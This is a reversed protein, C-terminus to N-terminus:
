ARAVDCPVGRHTVSGSIPDVDHPDVLANANHDAWGYHACVVGQAQRAVIRARFRVMGRASRVTVWDGDAIGRASATDSGIEVIPDPLRRRLGPIERHQAHCYHPVKATTLLLPFRPDGERDSPADPLPDYGAAAFAESWIEVLRSPTDFGRRGEDAAHEHRKRAQVVKTRIGSPRARLMAVTLGSPALHADLAADIDGHWFDSDFGLRSALAFAIEIDSRSEGAASVAAPRLQVLSAADENVEFGVRLGEREWPMSVPLVIDALAASRHLFPGIHVYLDLAALAARGEADGARTVLPNIGFGIMARIPYPTGHLIARYFDATAIGAQWRGPGLPRAEIGIAPKRGAAVFERGDLPVTPPGGFDVNGGPTDISGALSMVIAIARDTQTANRHQGIGTWGYYSVPRRAHLMEAANEIARAPIGTIAAARRPEFAACRRRYLELVTSCAVSAGDALRAECSGFLVSPQQEVFDGRDPDYFLRSGGESGAVLWRGPLEPDVDGARLLQGTDARVLLAANTWRATFEADYWGRALMVHGIALALAADTGPRVPLWLDAKVAAGARRPDVAIIAAGRAKAAAVATAHELWTASPNHGWLVICDSRAFDPSGIGRGTTYRHAYDKHWNCIETGTLFNPSGLRNRLREIWMLADSLPTASPSGSGFAITEPGYRASIARIREAIDHLAEDWGIRRWAPDGASKPSTRRMPYLLRADSAVMEPAARGKVCLAAGTPHSPDPEVAILRGDQVVAIQGCRSRCLACFGPLRRVPGRGPATSAAAPNTEDAEMPALNADGSLRM